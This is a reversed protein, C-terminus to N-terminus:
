TPPSFVFMHKDLANRVKHNKAHINGKMFIYDLLGYGRQLQQRCCGRLKHITIFLSYSCEINPKKKDLNTNVFSKIIDASVRPIRLEAEKGIYRDVKTHAQPYVYQKKSEKSWNEDSAMRKGEVKAGCPFTKKEMSTQYTGNDFPLVVSVGRFQGLLHHLLTTPLTLFLIQYQCATPHNQPLEEFYVVLIVLHTTHLNLPLLDTKHELILTSNEVDVHNM